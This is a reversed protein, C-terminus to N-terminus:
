AILADKEKEKKGERKRTRASRIKKKKEKDKIQFKEEEGHVSRERGEEYEYKCRSLERRREGCREGVRSSTQLATANVASTRRSGYKGNAQDWRIEERM